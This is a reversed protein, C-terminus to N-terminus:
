LVLKKSLEVASKLSQKDSVAFAVGSPMQKATTKGIVVARYSEKWAFKKFFCEITSPSSFIIVSDSPPAEFVEDSCVTEYVVIQVVSISHSSLFGKVDFAAVKPSPYIFKLNSYNKYIDDCLSRGNGDVSRHMVKGGLEEVIKATVDGVVFCPFDKWSPFIKDIAKVGNKSTIIFADFPELSIEQNLFEIKIVPLNLAGEVKKDSLIYVPM